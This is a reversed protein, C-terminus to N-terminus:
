KRDKGWEFAREDLGREVKRLDISNSMLRELSIGLSRAFVTTFWLVNSLHDVVEPLVSCGLRPLANNLEEDSLALDHYKGASSIAHAINGVASILGFSLNVFKYEKSEKFGIFAQRQYEEATM